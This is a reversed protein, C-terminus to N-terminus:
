GREDGEDAQINKLDYTLFIKSIPVSYYEALAQVKSIAVNSLDKEWANYTTTSVGLDSAVQAQTLGKRVRMERLYYKEM